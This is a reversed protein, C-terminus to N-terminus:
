KALLRFMRGFKKIAWEHAKWVKKDSAYRIQKEGEKGEAAGSRAVGKSDTASTEPTM